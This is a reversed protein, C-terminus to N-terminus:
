GAGGFLDPTHGQALRDMPLWADRRPLVLDDPASSAGGFLDNQGAEAASAARNAMSLISEVADLVQARNPNLCDFAGAKALSELARKNVVRADIRRALRERLEHTADRRGLAERLWVGRASSASVRLPADSTKASSRRSSPLCRM